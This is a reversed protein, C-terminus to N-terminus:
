HMGQVPMNMLLQKDLTDQIQKRVEAAKEWMEKATTVIDDAAEPPAMKRELCSLAHNTMVQLVVPIMDGAANFIEKIGEDKVVLQMTEAVYQAAMIAALMERGDKM